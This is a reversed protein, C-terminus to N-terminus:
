KFWEWCALGVESLADRLQAEVGTWAAAAGMWACEVRCHHLGRRFRLVVNM